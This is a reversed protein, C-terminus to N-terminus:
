GAAGEQAAGPLAPVEPQPEEVHEPLQKGGWGDGKFTARVYAARQTPASHEAIIPEVLEEARQIGMGRVAPEYQDPMTSMRYVLDEAVARWDVALTPRSRVWTLKLSPDAAGKNAGILSEIQNMARREDEQAAAIKQRADYLREAQTRLDETVPVIVDSGKAFKKALYEGYRASSDIPPERDTEVYDRWFRLGADILFEELERNRKIRYIEMRNGGFFAAVDWRPLDTVAMYWICQLLHQEPVHDSGADGWEQGKYGTNKIELGLDAGMVLRDPAGIVREYLPHQLIGIHDILEFGTRDSYRHAILPELANGWWIYENDSLDPLYERRKTKALWVDLPTSWPNVGVIASIDTGGIGGRRNELFRKKAEDVAM